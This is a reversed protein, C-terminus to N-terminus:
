FIQGAKFERHKIIMDNLREESQRILSDNYKIYESRTRKKKKIQNVM